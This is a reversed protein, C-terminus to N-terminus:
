KRAEMAQQEVTGTRLVTGLGNTDVVSTWVKDLDSQLSPSNSLYQARLARARIMVESHDMGQEADDVLDLLELEYQSLVKAKGDTQNQKFIGGAIQGLASAVSGLGEALVAGSDDQVPSQPKVSPEIGGEMITDGFNIAM